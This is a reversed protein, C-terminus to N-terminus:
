CYFSAIPLVRTYLTIQPTESPSLVYDSLCDNHCVPCFFFFSFDPIFTFNNEIVILDNLSFVLTASEDFPIHIAISAIPIIVALICVVDFGIGFATIIYDTIGSRQLPMVVYGARITPQSIRNSCFFLSLLFWPCLSLQNQYRPPHHMRSYRCLGTRSVM